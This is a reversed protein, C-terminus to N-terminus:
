TVGLGELLPGTETFKRNFLELLGVSTQVNVEVEVVTFGLDLLLVDLTGHLDHLLLAHKALVASRQQGVQGLVLHITSDNALATRRKASWHAFSIILHYL